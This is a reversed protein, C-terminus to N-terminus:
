YVAGDVLCNKPLNSNRRGKTGRCDWCCYCRWLYTAFHMRQHVYVYSPSSGDDETCVPMHVTCSIVLLTCLIRVYTRVLSQFEHTYRSNCKWSPVGSQM